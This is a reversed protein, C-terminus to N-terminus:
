DSTVDCIVQQRRSNIVVDVVLPDRIVTFVEYFKEFILSRNYLFFNNPVLHLIRTYIDPTLFMNLDKM